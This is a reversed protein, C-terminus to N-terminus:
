FAEIRKGLIESYQWMIGNQEKLRDQEAANLTQFIDSKGIFDSLAKAKADLETKEDVVRQQHPLAPSVVSPTLIENVMEQVRNYNVGLLKRREVGNGYEGRLVGKALAELTAYEDSNAIGSLRIFGKVARSARNLTRHKVTNSYNGEITIIHKECIKKIIGVHDYGGNNLWDYVILDGERAGSLGAYFTGWQRAIECQYYVSVEYPFQNSAYGAKHAVVSVFM